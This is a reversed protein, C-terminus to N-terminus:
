PPDPRELLETVAGHVTAASIRQMCTPQVDCDTRYAGVCPADSALKIGRGYLDIEQRSTPGFLAVVKKGLAAAVHMALTDGTVLVDCLGVLAFFQRLSHHGGTDIALGPARRAISANREVEQAGGLLLAQTPAAADGLLNLLAVFGDETWRKHEWRDSSGTNMGIVPVGPRLGWAQAQGAAWSREAASLYLHLERQDTPLGCIELAIQQYTKANLQKVDDFLGMEFWERAEPNVPVVHGRADFAYGLKRDARALTALQSSLPASDLNIVLSYHRTQLELGVTGPFGHVRHVLPNGEFLPLAGELTLWEVRAGPHARHLADLICTTRLVDGLADLKIVLISERLPEYHACDACHVGERKHPRCPRDGLFHRCDAHILM